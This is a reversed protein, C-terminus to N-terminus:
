RLEELLALVTGASYGRDHYWRVTGEDDLLLVRINRPNDTGTFRAIADSDAYVMLLLLACNRAM